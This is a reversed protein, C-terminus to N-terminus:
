MLLMRMATWQAQCCIISTTTPQELSTSCLPFNRSGCTRALFEPRLKLSPPSFKRKEQLCKRIQNFRSWISLMMFALIDSNSLDGSGNKCKIWASLCKGRVPHNLVTSFGSLTALWLKRNAKRPRNASTPGAKSDARYESIQIYSSKSLIFHINMPNHWLKASDTTPSMGVYAPTGFPPCIFDTAFWWGIVSVYWLPLM